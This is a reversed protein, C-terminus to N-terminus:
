KTRAKEFLGIQGPLNLLAMEEKYRKEAETEREPCDWTYLNDNYGMRQAIEDSVEGKGFFAVLLANDINCKSPNKYDYKCCNECNREQWEARQAGCWFPRISM